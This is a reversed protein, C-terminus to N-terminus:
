NKAKFRGETQILLPQTHFKEPGQSFKRPQAALETETRCWKRGLGYIPRSFVTEAHNVPETLTARVGNKTSARGVICEVQACM